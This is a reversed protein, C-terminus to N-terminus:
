AEAARQEVLVDFGRALQEPSLRVRKQVSDTLMVLLVVAVMTAILAVVRPALVWLALLVLAAGVLANRLERRARAAIEDRLAELVFPVEWPPVMEPTEPSWALSPLSQTRALHVLNHRTSAVPEGRASLFGYDVGEPKPRPPHLERWSRPLAQADDVEGAAGSEGAQQGEEREARAFDTM